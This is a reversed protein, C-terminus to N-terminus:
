AALRPERRRMARPKQPELPAENGLEDRDVQNVVVGTVKGLSHGLARLAQKAVAQATDRWKHVFVIQDANEALIRADVSPVIARADLVIIEFEARLKKLASTFTPSAFLDAAAVAPSADSLGPLFHLGTAAERMIAGRLPLRTMICDYLTLTTGPSLRSTLGRGSLDCDILLTRVGSLAFHLALNSALVSKGELPVASTVLVIQPTRGNRQREVAIRIARIQESFVSHPDLVIRRLQRLPAARDTPQEEFREITALHRLKLRAEIADTRVFSPFLLELLVALVLGFGLGGGFGGAVILTKKPSVPALPVIARDVLHADPAQLDQQQTTEQARKLFAEYVERAATAERVLENLRVTQTSDGNVSDKLKALNGELQKQSGVAVESESKLNTVIREIEARLEARSSVVQSNAKLMAPHLPGYRTAAAAQQRLSDAYQEKLAVIATAKLVDGVTGIDAGSELLQKAHEYKARTEASTNRALTLQEMQRAVEREDLPHGESDYLGHASKFQAVAKEAIFVKDRLEAIQRELWVTAQEAARQKTEVQARVYADAVANAIRAAKDPDRSKYGIQILFTERVREASVHSLFAEITSDARPASQATADILDGINQAHASAEHRGLYPKVLDKLKGLASDPHALESDDDLRLEDIVRGAVETSHIIETESEISPTNAILDSTVLKSSAVNKDRPDIFITAQAQYQPTLLSLFGLSAVGCLLTSFGIILKRKGLLRLLDALSPLGPGAGEESDDDESSM